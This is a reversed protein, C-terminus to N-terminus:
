FRLFTVLIFFTLVNKKVDMCKLVAPMMSLVIMLPVKYIQYQTTQEHCISVVVRHISLRVSVLVYINNHGGM